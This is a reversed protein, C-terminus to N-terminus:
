HIFEREVMADITDLSILALSHAEMKPPILLTYLGNDDMELTAPTDDVNIRVGEYLFRDFCFIRSDTLPV